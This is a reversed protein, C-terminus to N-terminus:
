IKARTELLDKGTIVEKIPRQKVVNPSKKRGYDVHELLIESKAAFLLSCIYSYSTTKRGRKKRGHTVDPEYLAFIKAPENDKKRLAHGIWSLQRKRIIEVLPKQYVRKYIEELRVRDSTKIGLWM